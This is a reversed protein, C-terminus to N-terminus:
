RRLIRAHDAGFALPRRRVTSPQRRVAL